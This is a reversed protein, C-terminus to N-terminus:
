PWVCHNVINCMMGTPCGTGCQIFCGYPPECRLPVGPAADLCDAIVSCAPSCVHGPENAISRCESGVPCGNHCDGYPGMPDVM